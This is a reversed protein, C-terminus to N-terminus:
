FYRAVIEVTENDLLFSRLTEETFTGSPALFGFSKKVFWLKKEEDWNLHLKRKITAM